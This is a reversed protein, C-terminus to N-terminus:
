RREDTASTGAATGLAHARLAAELAEVADLMAPLLREVEAPTVTARRRLLGQKRLTVSLQARDVDLRAWRRRWGRALALAAAHFATAGRLAAAAAGPAARLPFMRDFARDGTRLADAVAGRPRVTSLRLGEVRFRYEVYLAPRDPRVLVRHGRVIGNLEGARGPLASPRYSLGLRAALATFEDL